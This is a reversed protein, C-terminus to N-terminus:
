LPQKRNKIELIIEEISKNLFSGSSDVAASVEAEISKRRPYIYNTIDKLINVKLETSTQKEKYINILELVPDFGSHHQEILEMLNQTKRNPVGAKRGGTKNGNKDM